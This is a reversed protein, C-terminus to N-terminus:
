DGQQRVEFILNGVEDPISAEPLSGAVKWYITFLDSPTYTFVNRRFQDLIKMIEENTGNSSLGLTSDILQNFERYERTGNRPAKVPVLLPDIFLLETPMEQPKVKGRAYRLLLDGARITRECAFIQFGIRMMDMSDYIREAEEGFVSRPKTDFEALGALDWMGNIIAIQHLDNYTQRLTEVYNDSPLSIDPQPFESLAVNAFLQETTLATLNGSEPSHM